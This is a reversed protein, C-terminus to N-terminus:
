RSEVLLLLERTQPDLEFRGGRQAHELAWRFDALNDCWWAAGGLENVRTLYAVQDDTPKRGPVKMECALFRASGPLMGIIDAAGKSGARFLRTKGKHELRLTGTNQRWMPIGLTTALEIAKHVLRTEEGRPM